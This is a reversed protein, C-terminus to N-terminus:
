TASLEYEYREFFESWRRRITSELDPAIEYQGARHERRETLLERIAPAVPEFDGLELQEYISALEGLPDAVLDEYRVDAIQGASLQPRQSEFGGYMREFCSFIYEDLDAFRPRQLGQSEYLTRWLKRTSLFVEIPNRVIHIFKAGPFLEALVGVRGTHTPSKLVIRKPRQCTITRLFEDLSRQWLAEDAPSIDTMDLLESFEPPDNPFAMRCYPSPAGLMCLAFEDEQPHDFGQPMADMPRTAPLLFRLVKPAFWETVLFHSPAFCEYTMPFTFREDRVLLEHLFTTGSRWHGVIFIPPQDIRTETIRRGHRLRQLMAMASNGLTAATIGAAMPWRLPHIGFSHRWLLRWWVSFTMGHWLRPAWAPYSKPREDRSMEIEM